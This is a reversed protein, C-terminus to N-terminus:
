DKKTRLTLILLDVDYPDQGLAEPRADKPASWDRDRRDRWRSKGVIGPDGGFRRQWLGYSLVVVKGGNPADEQRTFQQRKIKIYMM